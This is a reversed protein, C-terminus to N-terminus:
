DSSFIAATNFFTLTKPQGLKSHYRIWGGNEFPTKPTVMLNHQKKAEELEELRNLSRVNDAETRIAEALLEQQTFQRIVKIKKENQKAMEEARKRYNEAFLSSKVATSARLTRQFYEAPYTPKKATTGATEVKKKVRKARYPEQYM